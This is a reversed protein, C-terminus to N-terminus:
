TANSANNIPFELKEFQEHTLKLHEGILNTDTLLHGEVKLDSMKSEKSTYERLMYNSGAQHYVRTDNTRILVGDVRMYFRMLIFFSSPMVRIKVNLLSCGNDALEDEYLVLDSFFHIKERVKLKEMDIRETTETIKIDGLTTGKYNTSFTWDFPNIVEKIDSEARAEQWEAAVAVKMLDNKADVLRLADLANFEIGFKGEHQVRIVNDAFIMEPFQPLPALDSEFKERKEGESKLIHSKQSTVTWPGFQFVEPKPQPRAIPDM